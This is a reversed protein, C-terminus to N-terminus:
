KNRRRRRGASVRRRHNRVFRKRYNRSLKRTNTTGFLLKILELDFDEVTLCFSAFSEKIVTFSERFSRELDEPWFFEGPLIDVTPAQGWDWETNALDPTGVPRIHLSM